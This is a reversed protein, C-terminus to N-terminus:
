KALPRRHPEGQCINQPRTGKWWMKLPNCIRSGYIRYSGLMGLAVMADTVIRLTRAPLHLRDSLVALTTPGHTTLADFLGVENAIFLHKAAPFGSAIELIPKPSVEHESQIKDSLPSAGAM